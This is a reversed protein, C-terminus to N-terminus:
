RWSGRVVAKELPTLDWGAVIGWFQGRRDLPKLLLPDAPAAPLWKADWLIAYLSLDSPRLRPPIEPVAAFATIDKTTDVNRPPLFPLATRPLLYRKMCFQAQGPRMGNDSFFVDTAYKGCSFRVMRWDARAIALRPLFHDGCGAKGITQYLDLIRRGRALARYLRVMVKDEETQPEGYEVLAQKAEEVSMEVVSTKM